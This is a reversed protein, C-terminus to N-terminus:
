PKQCSTAPAIDYLIVVLSEFVSKRQLFGRGFLFEWVLNKANSFFEFKVEYFKRM